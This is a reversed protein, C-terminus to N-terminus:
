TRADAGEEAETEGAPPLITLTQYEKTVEYAAMLEAIEPHDQNLREKDVSRRHGLTRRAVLRGTLEARSATGMADRVLNALRDAETRAADAARRAAHYAALREAWSADLEVVQGPEPKWRAEIARRTSESGDPEPPRGAVVHDFWFREEAAILADIFLDDREIPYVRFEHGTAVLVDFLVKPDVLEDLAPCPEGILVGVWALNVNRVAMYHQVQCAYALPIGDDWAHWMRQGATKAEALADPVGDPDIVEADLHGRMWPHDPHCAQPPAYHLTHPGAQECIVGLTRALIDPEMRHGWATRDNGAFGPALGSKEAWLAYPSVYKNLGLIVAADGGGIGARRDAQFAEDDRSVTALAM